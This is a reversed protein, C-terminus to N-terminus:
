TLECKEGRIDLFQVKSWYAETCQGDPLELLVCAESDADTYWGHCYAYAHKDTKCVRLGARPDMIGSPGNKKTGLDRVHQHATKRLMGNITHYEIARSVALKDALFLDDILREITARNLRPMLARQECAALKKRLGLAYGWHEILLDALSIPDLRKQLLDNADLKNLEHRQYQERITATKMINREVRAKSEFNLLAPSGHSTAKDVLNSRCNLNVKVPIDFLGANIPLHPSADLEYNTQVM